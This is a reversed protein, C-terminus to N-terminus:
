PRHVEHRLRLGAASAGLLTLGAVLMSGAASLSGGTWDYLAEPVVLSTALVGATLVSWSRTSLFGVFGAVAVAGTLVYALWDQESMLPWQAGLLVVAVGTALAVERSRVVRTLGLAVWVGGLVVLAVSQLLWLRSDNGGNVTVESVYMENVLGTVLALSWAWAGLQGVVGPVLAYTSAVVVLGVASAVPSWGDMALSTAIAAALAAFTWLVSVLRRRTSDEQDRLERVPRGSSSAILVGAVLLSVALMIVIVVRSLQDLGGWGSSLFMAAAGALLAGGLYGAIEALRGGRSPSVTAEPPGLPRAPSAAAGLVVAVRAAQAEDLTGEAVLDRLASAVGSDRAGSPASSESSERDPAANTPESMQGESM